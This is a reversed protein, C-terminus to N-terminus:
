EGHGIKHHEATAEREVQALRNGEDVCGHLRTLKQNNRIGGVAAVLAAVASIVSALGFFDM